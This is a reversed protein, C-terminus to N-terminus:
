IIQRARYTVPSDTQESLGGPVATKKAHASGLGRAAAADAAADNSVLAVLPRTFEEPM